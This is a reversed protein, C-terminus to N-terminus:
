TNKVLDCLSENFNDLSTEDGSCDGDITFSATIGIGSIVSSISLSLTLIRKTM